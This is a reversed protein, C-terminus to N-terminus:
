QTTGPLWNQHGEFSTSPIRSSVQFSRDGRDTKHIHGLKKGRMCHLRQNSPTHQDSVAITPKTAPRHTQDSTALKVPTKPWQDILKTAPRESSTWREHTTHLNCFLVFSPCSLWVNCISACSIRWKTMTGLTQSPDQIVVFGFYRITLHVNLYWHVSSWPNRVVEPAPSTAPWSYPHSHLWPFKICYKRLQSISKKMLPQMNEPSWYAQLCKTRAFRVSALQSYPTPAYSPWHTKIEWTWGVHRQM